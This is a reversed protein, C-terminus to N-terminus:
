SIIKGDSLRVVTDYLSLSETRHAITLVTKPKLLTELVRHMQADTKPDLSSTAEDMLVYPKDAAIIRALCVLQREGVSLNQGGEVIPMDLDFNLGVSQLSRLLVASNMSGTRDLNSQLTGEFLYPSQPVVGFLARLSDMDTEYISKNNIKVDGDHVYVMRFLAQFVSTKGSGTRGMFAVKSGFPIELDLGHLIIPTDKRYSVVLKEFRINGPVALVPKSAPLGSFTTPYRKREESEEAPLDVIEFVRRVNAASGTVSSAAYDLWGISGRIGILASIIVGCFTIDIRGWSYLTVLLLLIVFTYIESVMRIWFSFQTELWYALSYAHIYKRFSDSLRQLLRNSKGYLLFIERGEIIDTKRHIVQGIAASSLSRAHAIVTGRQSSLWAVSLVMPLLAFSAWPNLFAVLIGVSFVEVSANALDGVFIIATSRVEDFDKVLKNILRGSPNEDFYTTRTKGLSRVMMAHIVQASWMGSLEFFAWAAIRFITSLLTILILGSIAVSIPKSLGPLLYSGEGQALNGAYWRFLSPATSSALIFFVSFPLLWLFLKLNSFLRVNLSVISHKGSISDDTTFNSHDM